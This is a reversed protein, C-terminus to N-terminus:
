LVMEVRRVGEDPPNLTFGMKKVLGLMPVNGALVEGWLSKVGNDRAIEIVRSILKEGLGKGHWPDAVIVAFEAEGRDPTMVL